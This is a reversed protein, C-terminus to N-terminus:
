EPIPTYGSGGWTRTITTTYNSSSLLIAWDGAATYVALDLKGDGDFDGRVRAFYGPGGWLISLTTTDNTSSELAYWLGTFPNYVAFDTKGDGDFDGPTALWDPGGVVKSMSTTFNTAALLVYWSATESQYVAIDTKGDGDYDGPMEAYGFGGWAVSITTMFNSSSTLILWTGNAGDYVAIDSKGDGDYDGVVPAFTGGGITRTISTTFSAGSLVVTFTSAMFDYTAYDAKGDGDFDGSAPTIGSAGWAHNASTTYAAGSLLSYGTASGFKYVTLDSKGDGDFDSARMTDDRGVRIAGPILTDVSSGFAMVNFSTTYNTSSKLVYWNGTARQVAGLDMRGDGDYDGPVPDYALGGWGQILTTAYGTGSLLVYWTGSARYYLGLDAKGDGDYDGPVLTYGRGGWTVILSTTYNTSSKLVYWTSTSERYVAVDAKGDGDFDQGPVPTYGVGGWAVNQTTTFNTSSLLIYWTADSERYVALDGKGDGDYDGPEPVYGTGGWSQSFSTTFNTSSKLALWQGTTTGYVAVDQRGDGDYDGKVPVYGPGGWNIVQSSTYGSTSKLISWQGDGRYLTMDSKGDGDFEGAPATGGTWINVSWCQLTGTDTPFTDAIRLTWTGNVAAGSKGRFTKLVGEPRFTGVFPASVGAIQSSAADDFTTRSTVPTCASGYNAGGGGNATTLPITTSDPGILNIDLDADFTHTIYLSVTVDGIPGTVGSVTLPINTTGNDAIPTPTSNTFTAAAAPNAAQTIGANSGGQVFISGGRLPGPNAAVNYPITANGTGATAGPFTVWNVNSWVAWNCTGPSATISVTASAPGAGANVVAGITITCGSQAPQAMVIGAGSDRDIGPAEIDIASAQLASRVQAQTFGPNASKILAAIAAADPAAASTGYFTGAFAGSGNVSVGDAATIDPKQVVLGGTSSFNGPTFATGAGNFFLRRPGDSSFTEVPTSANFANPFVASASAAAVGFAGVDNTAAHGHTQGATAISLRGRNTNLHLYRGLAGTKKVVVLRTSAPTASVNVQEYPDQTGNQVNTSSAAVVTGATNLRFLDYDNASAGLPDSWYLNVLSGNSTLTDFPTSTAFNHVSGAPLPSATAGGDAFDGEWVGSTGDDLNGSNGASSFYLAGSAVVEKVAQIVVGGNTTTTGAQGDQFPTEVFYFVDDVIIDCGATRLDHINQAFQTITPNATAFYLQAGPAIDHILELMATGEDGAGTQGPLVTVPGLDGTSQSVALNTVGDSLVGIKIGAGTVGTLGRYVASRHAIDAQSVVNGLGTGILPGGGAARDQAQMLMPRLRRVLADRRDARTTRMAGPMAGARQLMYAQRPQIFIVDPDSALDAIQDLAAHLQLVGGAYAKSEGTIANVHALLSPTPNAKVDVIVHGDDAYPLDVEQTQVGPAIPLGQQMRRAYLLQSDIKREAPTRSEKEKMLADIQALAQPSIGNIEQQGRASIRGGSILGAAAIAGALIWRSPTRNM